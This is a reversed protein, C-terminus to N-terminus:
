KVLDVRWGFYHAVGVQPGADLEPAGGFWLMPRMEYCLNMARWFPRKLGLRYSVGLPVYAAVFVDSRTRFDEMESSSTRGDGPRGQDGSFRPTVEREVSHRVSVEGAFSSGVQLGCGGFLSWHRPYEKLYIVAADLGLQGYTHEFSYRSTVMSDIYTVQGTQASTLTDYPSIVEKRLEIGQGAHQMFNFGLRLYAGTRTAPVAKRLDLCVSAAFAGIMQLGGDVEEHDSLDRTLLTSSPALLHWDGISAAYAPDPMGGSYLFVDTIRHRSATTDPVYQAHVSVAFVITSSFLLNRM